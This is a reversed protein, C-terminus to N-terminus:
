ITSELININLYVYWLPEKQEEIDGLEKKNRKFQVKFSIYM